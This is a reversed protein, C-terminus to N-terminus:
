SLADALSILNPRRFDDSRPALGNNGQEIAPIRIFIATAGDAKAEEVHIALLSEIDREAFIVVDFCIVRTKIETLSQYRSM